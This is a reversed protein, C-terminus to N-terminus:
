TSSPLEPLLRVDGPLKDRDWKPAHVYVALRDRGCLLCLVAPATDAEVQEDSTVLRFDVAHRCLGHETIARLAEREVQKLKRDM